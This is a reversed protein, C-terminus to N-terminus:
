RDPHLTESPHACNKDSDGSRGEDLAPNNCFFPSLTERKM